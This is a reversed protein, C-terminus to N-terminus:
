AFLVSIGVAGTQFSFDECVLGSAKIVRSAKGIRVEFLLLERCIAIQDDSQEILAPM